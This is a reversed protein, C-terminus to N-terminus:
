CIFINTAMRFRLSITLIIYKKKGKFGHKKQYERLARDVEDKGRIPAMRPASKVRLAKYEEERKEELKQQKTSFETVSDDAARGYSKGYRFNLTPIFGSFTQM